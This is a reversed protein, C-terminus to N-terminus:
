SIFKIGGGVLTPSNQQVLTGNGLRGFDGQGWCWAEGNAKLACTHAVTSASIQIFTHHGSVLTPDFRGIDSGVGLQGGVNNGWCMTTGDLLIGCSHDGGATVSAFL